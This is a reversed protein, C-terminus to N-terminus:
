EGAFRRDDLQKPRSAALKFLRGERRHFLAARHSKGEKSGSAVRCSGHAMCAKMRRFAKAAFCTAFARCARPFNPLVRERVKVAHRTDPHILGAHAMANKV